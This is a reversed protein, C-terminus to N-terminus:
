NNVAPATLVNTLFKHTSSREIDLVYASGNVWTNKAEGERPEATLWVSSRSGNLRRRWISITRDLAWRNRDGRVGNAEDPQNDAGTEVQM